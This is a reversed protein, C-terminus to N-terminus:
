SERLRLILLKQVDLEDRILRAAYGDGFFVDPMPVGRLEGLLTGERDYVDIREVTEPTDESVGVWLRDRTDVRLAVIRPVVPEFTMAALQAERSLGMEPPLAPAAGPAGGTTVQMSGGQITVRTGGGTPPERRRAREAEKDGETVARAPPGRRISGRPRGDPGLRHLIYEATDSVVLSGDSFTRWQFRPAFARPMMMVAIAGSGPSGQEVRDTRPPPAMWLTDARGAKDVRLLPIGEAQLEAPSMGPRPIPLARAALLYDSAIVALDGGNPIVRDGPYPVDRPEGGAQPIVILRRNGLDNVWLNGAADLAIGAPSSLEGPGSGARGFTAVHRGDLSYKLVRRGSGDLLYVHSGDGALGAPSVRDFQYAPDAGFVDGVVALTDLAWSLRNASSHTGSSGFEAASGAPGGAVAGPEGSGTQNGCAGALVLVLCGGLAAM